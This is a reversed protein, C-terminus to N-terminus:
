NKQQKKITHVHTYKIHLKHMCTCTDTTDVHLEMGSIFISTLYDSRRTFKIEFLVNSNRVRPIYMYM